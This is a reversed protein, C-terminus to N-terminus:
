GRILRVLQDFTQTDMDKVDPGFMPIPVGKSSFKRALPIVQDAADMDLIVCIRVVGQVTASRLIEEVGQESISTGLLAVSPFYPSLRVASPQDEVICIARDGKPYNTRTYWSIMPVPFDRYPRLLSKPTKGDYSRLVYGRVDGRPTYIPQVARGELTGPTLTRVLRRSLSFREGLPHGAIESDSYERYHDENQYSQYLKRTGGLDTKKAPATNIGSTTGFTACGASLCKYWHGGEDATGIMLKGAKGCEPCDMYQLGDRSREELFLRVAKNHNSM